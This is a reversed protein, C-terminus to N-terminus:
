LFPSFIIAQKSSKVGSLKREMSCLQHPFKEQINNTNIDGNKISFNLRKDAVAILVM